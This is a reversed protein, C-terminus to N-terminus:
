SSGSILQQREVIGPSANPLDGPAAPQNGNARVYSVSAENLLTSSFAHVSDIQPVVDRQAAHHVKPTYCTVSARSM